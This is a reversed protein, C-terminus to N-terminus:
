QPPSVMGTAAAIGGAAGTALSPIRLRQGIHLVDSQLHNAQRLSAVSVRHQNAIGSLTDGRSVLHESAHQQQAALWTGPLPRATFYNRVGARIAASLQKRLGSSCVDSSWDSIRM